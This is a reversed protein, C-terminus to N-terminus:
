IAAFSPCNFCPIGSSYCCCLHFVHSSCCSVNPSTVFCICLNCLFFLVLKPCILPICSFSSVVHLYFPNRLLLFIKRITGQSARATRIRVSPVGRPVTNPCDTEMSIYRKPGESPSGANRIVSGLHGAVPLTNHGCSITM